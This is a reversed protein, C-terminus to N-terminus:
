ILNTYKRPNNRIEWKNIVNLMPRFRPFNKDTKHKPIINLEGNKTEFKKEEWDGRAKKRLAKLQQTIKM